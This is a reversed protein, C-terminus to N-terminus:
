SLQFNNTIQLPLIDTRKERLLMPRSSRRSTYVNVYATKIWESLLWANSDENMWHYFQTCEAKHETQLLLREQCSTRCAKRDRCSTRQTHCSYLRCETNNLTSTSHSYKNKRTTSEGSSGACDIVFCISFKHSHVYCTCNVNKTFNLAKVIKGM